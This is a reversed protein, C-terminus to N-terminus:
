PRAAAMGQVHQQWYHIALQRVTPSPDDQALQRLTASL